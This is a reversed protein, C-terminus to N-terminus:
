FYIAHFKFQGKTDYELAPFPIKILNLITFIGKLAKSRTPIRTLDVDLSLFFKRYRDFEQNNVGLGEAGYGVAVNLWKPFKSHKPLFSHINGSLWFSMGNYDKVLNQILNRGLLDPNYQPYKSPHYSYKLLFRQEDWGFQQGVFLLCGATNAALDGWSFGWEASFGDLIEINLMFAYTLLSGFLIAKKREVGAWRYSTYMVRSLYYSSFVHGMKDMQLWENNDNFFHFNSQAYDKYWLYYLGTLSGFYIVGQASLVGILRGKHLTDPYLPNPEFSRKQAQVPSGSILFIFLVPLWFYLQVSTLRGHISSQISQDKRRIM